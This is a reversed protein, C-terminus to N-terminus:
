LYLTLNPGRLSLCGGSLLGPAIVGLAGRATIDAYRRGRSPLVM